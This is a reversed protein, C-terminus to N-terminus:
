RELTLQPIAPPKIFCFVVFYFVPPQALYSVRTQERFAEYFDTANCEALTSAAIWDNIDSLFESADRTYLGKM